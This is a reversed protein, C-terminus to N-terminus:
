KKKLGLQVSGSFLQPINPFCLPFNTSSKKIQQFHKAGIMFLHQSKLALRAHLTIPSFAIQLLRFELYVISRVPIYWKKISRRFNGVVKKTAIMVMFVDFPFIKRTVPGKRPSNVPWRYIGRVIALSASSQRKRQDTGSFVTSYVSTIGTIQSAIASM